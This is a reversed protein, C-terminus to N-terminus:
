PQYNLPLDVSSTGYAIRVYLPALNDRAKDKKIIFRTRLINSVSM